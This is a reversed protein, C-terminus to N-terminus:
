RAVGQRELEYTLIRARDDPILNESAWRKWAPATVASLWYHVEQYRGLLDHAIHAWRAGAKGSREVEVAVPPKGDVPTWEGDALHQFPWSQMRLRIESVWTGGRHALYRTAVASTTLTHPTETWSLPRPPPLCCVTTARRLPVVVGPGQGPYPRLQVLGLARWRAVVDRTTRAGLPLHGRGALAALLLSLDDLRVARHAATFDVAARDRDTLRHQVPKLGDM